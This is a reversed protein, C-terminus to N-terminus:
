ALKKKFENMDKAVRGDKKMNRKVIAWYREIPRFEPVNPPNEEKAVYNINNEDLLTLTSRAYHASALDPWFIASVTHEKYFPILRRKLCEKQYNEASITGKTFFPSTRLGCSCIAQWILVKEGFKEMGITSVSQDVSGGKEKTYFQPGPLTKSDMKVYTEDDMLICEVREQNLRDYLKRLRTKGVKVQKESRKPIKQKKYTKLNHRQKVRQIMSASTGGKKALDRVSMSKNKNILILIKSELKANNPGKKRGSKPMDKLSCTNGFKIIINKVANPSVKYRKALKRYSINNETCYNHVIKKRVDVTIRAM